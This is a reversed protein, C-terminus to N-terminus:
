APPSVAGEGAQLDALDHMEAKLASYCRRYIEYYPGYLSHNREDPEITRGLTIWNRRLEGFGRFIGAGIGALYADGFSAGITQAPVDVRQNCCDAIIHLWVQNKAGGGVAILRAPIADAEAMVELNHRIAYAVGELLARYVHKRTHSLTLGTITGRARADHIPAREGSFYPLVILGESGVPVESAQEALQQYASTGDREEILQEAGAFNDKFWRTLAASTAMGASLAYTGEVLYRSSWLSGHRRREGLVQTIFATTGLMLMTEGPATAGISIAEAAADVTGAIVPTGAVLGTEGAAAATVTGIVDTTPHLGPLLELSCIPETMAPNWARQTVDFMPAFGQASYEDIVFEGTLKLGLYSSATLVKHTRAFLEPEHNRFWLIKPGVSNASLPSGSNAVIADNGLEKTLYEIERSARTDIGYLISPRLPNGDADVPLMTLGIASCGVAAVESAAVGSQELLTRVIRVFSGWWITEADHEAWGPRPISLAYESTATAKITGDSHVLVGKASYTGVDVGILHAREPM